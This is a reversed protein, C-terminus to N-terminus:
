HSPVLAFLAHIASMSKLVKVPDVMSWSQSVGASFQHGPFFNNQLIEAIHKFRVYCNAPVTVDRLLKAQIM